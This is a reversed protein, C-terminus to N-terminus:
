MMRATASLTASTSLFRPLRPVAARQLAAVEDVVRRVEEAVVPRVVVVVQVAALPRPVNFSKVPRLSRPRPQLVAAVVPTRARDVGVVPRAIAWMISIPASCYM